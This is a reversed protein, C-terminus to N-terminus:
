PAAPLIKTVAQVGDVGSAFHLKLTIPRGPRLEPTDFMLAFLRPEERKRLRMFIGGDEVYGRLIDESTLIGWAFPESWAKASFTVRAVNQSEGYSLAIEVNPSGTAPGPKMGQGTIAADFHALWEPKTLRPIDIYFKEELFPPLVDLDGIKVPVIFNPDIGNIERTLARRLERQVWPKTVAVPSLFIFFKDAADMGEAIKAILSDGGVIEYKDVWPEHEPYRAVFEGYIAEVIMKDESAHSFFIKAM